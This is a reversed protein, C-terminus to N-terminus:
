KPDHPLKFGVIRATDEVSRDGKGHYEAHLSKWERQSNLYAAYSEALHQMEESAKCHIKDTMQHSKYQKMIYGNLKVSKAQVDTNRIERFINRLTALRATTSVLISSNM